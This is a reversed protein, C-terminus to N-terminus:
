QDKRNPERTEKAQKYIEAKKKNLSNENFKRVLAKKRLNKKLVKKKSSRKTTWSSIYKSYRM